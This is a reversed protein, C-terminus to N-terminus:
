AKLFGYEYVKAAITKEALEHLQAFEKTEHNSPAVNWNFDNREFVSM